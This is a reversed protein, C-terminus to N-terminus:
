VDAVLRQEVSRRLLVDLQEIAENVNLNEAPRKTIQPRWYRESSVQGNKVSVLTGPELKKIGEWGSDTGPLYEFLLFRYAATRDPMAHKFAPHRLMASIESAFVLQGRIIGFYLPKEGFRDRALYVTGDGQRFAFAFMGDIRELASHVGERRILQFLVETDSDDRLEIGAAGLENALSKYGYIEGNFVLADGTDADVRPQAGGKPDIIALRTHGFAIGADVYIGDGDPGRHALAANMERIIQDAGRAPHIFGAIGCM